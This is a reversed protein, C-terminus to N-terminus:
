SKCMRMDHASRQKCRDIKFIYFKFHQIVLYKFIYIYLYIYIYM